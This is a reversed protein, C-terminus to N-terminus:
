KPVISSFDNKMITKSLNHGSVFGREALVFGINILDVCRTRLSKEQDTEGVSSIDGRGACFIDGLTHGLTQGFIRSAFYGYVAFRIPLESIPLQSERVTSQERTLRQAFNEAATRVLIVYTLSLPSIEFASLESESFRDRLPLTALLTKDVALHYHSEKKQVSVPITRNLHSISLQGTAKFPSLGGGGFIGKTLTELTQPVVQRPIYFIPPLDVSTKDLIVMPAEQYNVLLARSLDIEAPSNPVPVITLRNIRLASEGHKNSRINLSIRSASAQFTQNAGETANSLQSFLATPQNINLTFTPLGIIASYLNSITLSNFSASVITTGSSPVSHPLATILQERARTEILSPLGLLFAGSTLGGFAITLLLSRLM